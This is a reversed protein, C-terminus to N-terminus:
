GEEEELLDAVLLLEKAAAHCFSRFNFDKPRNFTPRLTGDENQNVNICSGKYIRPNRMTTVKRESANEVFSFHDEGDRTLMGALFEGENVRGPKLTFLKLDVDLETHPYIDEFLRGPEDGEKTKADKDRAKWKRFAVALPENSHLYEVLVRGIVKPENKKETGSQRRKFSFDKAM